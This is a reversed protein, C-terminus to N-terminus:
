RGKHEIVRIRAEHDVLMRDQEEDKKYVTLFKENTTGMQTVIVQMKTNLEAVNNSLSEINKSWNSSQWAIFGMIITLLTMVMRELLKAWAEQNM